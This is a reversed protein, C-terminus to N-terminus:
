ATRPHIAVIYLWLAITMRGPYEEAHAAVSFEADKFPLSHVRTTLAIEKIECTDVYRLDFAFGTVKYNSGIRPSTAQLAKFHKRALENSMEPGDVASIITQEVGLSGDTGGALLEQLQRAVRMNPTASYGLKVRADRIAELAHREAAQACAAAFDRGPYEMKLTAASDIPSMEGVEESAHNSKIM